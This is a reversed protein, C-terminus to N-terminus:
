RRTLRSVSYIFRGKSCLPFSEIYWLACGRSYLCSDACLFTSICTCICIILKSTSCHCPMKAGGRVEYPALSLACSDFALPRYSRSTATKKGGGTEKWETATMFMRDKSHQMSQWSQHPSRDYSWPLSSLCQYWLLFIALLQSPMMRIVQKKGM